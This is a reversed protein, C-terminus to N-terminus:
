RITRQGSGRNIMIEQSKRQDVKVNRRRVIGRVFCVAALDVPSGAGLFGIPAVSGFRGGGAASLFRFDDVRVLTSLRFLVLVAGDVSAWDHGTNGVSM